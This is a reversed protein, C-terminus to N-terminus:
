DTAAVTQQRLEKQVRKLLEDFPLPEWGPLQWHIPLRPLDEWRDFQLLGIVQLGAIEGTETEAENLTRFLFFQNGEDIPDADWLAPTPERFVYLMDREPSDWSVSAKIIEM